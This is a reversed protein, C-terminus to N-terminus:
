RSARYTGSEGRRGRAERLLGPTADRLYQCFSLGAPSLEGRQGGQATVIGFHRTLDIGEIEVLANRAVEPRGAMSRPLLAVGIGANLMGLLTNLNGVVQAPPLALGRTELAAAIRRRLAQHQDVMVLAHRAFADPGVSGAGALPHNAPTMLLMDDSWLPEFRYRGDDGDYALIALSASGDDIAAMVGAYQLDRLEVEVDPYRAAYGQIVVPLTLAALTPTTAVVVRSRAQRAQERMGHVLQGLGHLARSAEVFLRAGDDTADVRRTTRNLLRAGLTGELRQIRGTVTPQTVHLRQAAVSFSGAQVVAVFTELEVLEIGM